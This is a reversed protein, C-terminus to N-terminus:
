ARLYGCRCISAEAADLMWRKLAIKTRTKALKNDSEENLKGFILQLSPGAFDGAM